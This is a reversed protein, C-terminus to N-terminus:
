FPIDDDKFHQESALAAAGAANDENRKSAILEKVYPTDRQPNWGTNGRDLLMQRLTPKDIGVSAARTFAMDVSWADDTPRAAPMAQRPTGNAAKVRIGHTKGNFPRDLRHPYVVIKAGVWNDDDDEGTIAAIADWNTVNLGLEQDTENFAIARQVKGDDMESTRISKITVVIGDNKGQDLLDQAKLWGGSYTEGRKM